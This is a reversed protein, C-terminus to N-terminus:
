QKYDILNFRLRDIKIKAISYALYAGKNYEDGLGISDLREGLYRAIKSLELEINM